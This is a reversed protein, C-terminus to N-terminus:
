GEKAPAPDAAHKVAQWLSRMGAAVGGHFARTERRGPDETAGCPCPKLKEADADCQRAKVELRALVEQTVPSALWEAFGPMETLVPLKTGVPLAWIEDARGM